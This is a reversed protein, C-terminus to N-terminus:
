GRLDLWNQFSPLSIREAVIKREKHATVVKFFSFPTTNPHTARTEAEAMQRIQEREAPSASALYEFITKKCFDEYELQLREQDRNRQAQREASIREQHRSQEAQWQVLYQKIGRFSQMKFGTKPAEELAFSVLGRAGEEGLEEILSKAFAIDEKPLIPHELKEVNHLRKYFDTVLTVPQTINAADSAQQFQLVRARSGIYFHAYDRFFSKGPRFVLKFGEGDKMAEVSVSRVLGLEKLVDFHKGLQYVIRSKFREPKLGGLWEACIATYNKEFKLAEKNYQEEYLNSLHLYIRKYLAATLPELRTIDDWNFIAFHGKRMNDVIAPNLTIVAADLSKLSAGEGEGVFGSNSVLNFRYRKQKKSNAVHLILTVQTDQLQCIAEFLEKSDKGGFIDRGVMRGLERYSFAVSEPYPRGELTVKRFVAQIVRYALLSPHGYRESVEIHVERDGDRYRFAGKRRKAEIKDFCFYRGELRLVNIEELFHDLKAHVGVTLATVQGERSMKNNNDVSM